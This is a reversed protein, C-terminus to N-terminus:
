SGGRKQRRHDFEFRQLLRKRGDPGAALLAHNWRADNNMRNYNKDNVSFQRDAWAEAQASVPEPQPVAPTETEDTRDDIM